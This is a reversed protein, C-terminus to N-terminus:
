PIADVKWFEWIQNSDKSICPKISMLIFLPNNNELKNSTRLFKIQVNSKQIEFNIMQMKLLKFIKEIKFLLM